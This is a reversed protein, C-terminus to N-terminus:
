LDRRSFQWYALATAAITAAGLVSLDQATNARGEIIAAGQYFHFPSILSVQSLEKWWVGLFDILYLAIAAVAVPAQAAARRRAWGAAALTVAGFCSAVMFLHAILNLVIRLEPWRARPPALTVLGIWTGAGMTLMLALTAITTVLLSRTVIWHRPLPRAFIVDVFGAEVDGAPEAAVFIAFLAVMLVIGTEYFGVSAMGAFSSMATGFAHRAVAPLLMALQDFSGAREYSAAVAVLILQFGGLVAALGICVPAIRRLSRGVLTLM